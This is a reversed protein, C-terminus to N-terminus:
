SAWAECAGGASRPLGFVDDSFIDSEGIEQVTPLKGQVPNPQGSPLTANLISDAHNIGVRNSARQLLGESFTGNGRLQGQRINYERIVRSFLGNSSNVQIARYLWVASRHTEATITGQAQLGELVLSIDQPSNRHEPAMPDIGTVCQFIYAYLAVAGSPQTANAAQALIGRLRDIEALQTPTFAFSTVM